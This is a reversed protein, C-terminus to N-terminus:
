PYKGGAYYAYNEAFGLSHRSSLEVAYQMDWRHTWDERIGRDYLLVLAYVMEAFLGKMLKEDGIKFKGNKLEPCNRGPWPFRRATFFNPCVVMIEAGPRILVFQQDKDPQDTCEHLFAANKADTEDFCTFRPQPTRTQAETLPARDEDVIIPWAHVFKEFMAVVKGINRNSKFFAAYGHQSNTGLNADAIVHELQQKM